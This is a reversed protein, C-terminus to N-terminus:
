ELKASKRESRWSLGKDALGNERLTKRLRQNDVLLSVVAITMLILSGYEGSYHWLMWSFGAAVVGVILLLARDKM